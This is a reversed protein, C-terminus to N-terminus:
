VSVTARGSVDACLGAKRADVRAATCPRQGGIHYLQLRSWQARILMQMFYPTREVNCVGLPLGVFEHSQQVSHDGGDCRSSGGAPRWVSWILWQADLLVASALAMAVAHHMWM